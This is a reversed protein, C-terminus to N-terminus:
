LATIGSRLNHCSCIVLVEYNYCLPSSKYAGSYPDEATMSCSEKVRTEADMNGMGKRLEGRM